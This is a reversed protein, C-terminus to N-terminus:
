WYVSFVECSMCLYHDSSEAHLKAHGRAYRGCNVVGCHLCLWNQEQIRCETFLFLCNPFPSFNHKAEVQRKIANVIVIEVSNMHPQLNLM